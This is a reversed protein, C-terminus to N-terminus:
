SLQLLPQLERLDAVNELATIKGLLASCKTEGLVPAILDRAKAVVEERTMPNEPTGRVNDVRRSLKTGDALTVELIAVRLPMLRQLDADPVLKIKSRERLVGPDKLRASDHASAFSVTKDLLAVGLM